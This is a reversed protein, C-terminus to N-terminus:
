KYDLAQEIDCMDRPDLVNPQELIKNRWGNLKKEMYELLHNDDGGLGYYISLSTIICDVAEEKSSEKLPKNKRGLEILRAAAVEGVEEVLCLFREEISEETANATCWQLLEFLNERDAVGKRTINSYEEDSMFPRGADYDETM